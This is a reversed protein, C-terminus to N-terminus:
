RIFFGMQEPTPLVQQDRYQREAARVAQIKTQFLSALNDYRVLVNGLWYSRNEKLWLASYADRLRTTADRLDELRANTSSIENLDRLVRERDSMNLYADWYYKSIENAFQIKMGLLDLRMAAFILYDLTDANTQARERNRYLSELAREAALRLDRAATFAEDARGAGSETFPDEWFAEDFAGSMAKSERLITHSRALNQVVDRFSSDSNRYFAWDYKQKFSEISVEGQQWSCAAGFVIAPWTMGFLSEGDDDWTTNLMGLAGYKQGASVFGKINLFAVDLDPFIRNWNNAGPSVFIDLGADRYPKLLNDFGSSSGYNWAVAIVDKPLINLLEPYKIAIDGWFMLRKNYPKMIEAVRKLHELYIRGLGAESARAKTQGQGLEFTEDAGIHFLPGPFLPVLESYLDKILAYSKENVPALVHGHPTEALDSYIENKLVHHLHGFAQQEPLMAVYYRKAYEVLEKVEAANLSGEKPGILPHTQYDFVHEIYLAFLNLKYAACTRIQKKIYDLTPVPGRSIDDHVGRWRMAPWDKIALAPVVPTAPLAPTVGASMQGVQSSQPRSPRAGLILQRLTQAGYFLGQGTRAAIVIRERTADLVYGEDDFRDDIALKSADILSPLPKDDRTRAFYIVGSKPSSRGTTIKLKLGSAAEIEEVVTEAAIRDEAAHASNVVIRTKSTINFLGDRRQLERPEPILKLEQAPAPPCLLLCFLLTLFM